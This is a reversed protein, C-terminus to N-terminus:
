RRRTRGSRRGPAPPLPPSSPSVSSCPHSPSPSVATPPVATLRSRRYQREGVAAEGVAAEDVAKGGVGRGAASDSGQAEGAVARVDAAGSEAVSHLRPGARRRLIRNFDRKFQFMNGLDDAGPFGFSRYVEPPVNNYRVEQGLARTLAKAMEAGTLHEGAIGM